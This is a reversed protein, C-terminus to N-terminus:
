TTYSANGTAFTTTHLGSTLDLSRNYSTYDAVGDILVSVNGLVAYSGYATYNNQLVSANGSGNQFIWSQIGPLADAKSEIPNAGRYDPDEFPGGSWLDDKNLNLKEKGPEGYPLM